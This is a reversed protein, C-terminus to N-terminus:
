SYEGNKGIMHGITNQKTPNTVHIISDNPSKLTGDNLSIDRRKPTIMKGGPRKYLFREEGYLETKPTPGTPLYLDDLVNNNDRPKSNARHEINPLLIKKGKLSEM